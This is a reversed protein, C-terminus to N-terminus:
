RNLTEIESVARLETSFLYAARVRSVLEAIEAPLEEFRLPNRPSAVLCYEGDAGVLPKTDFSFLGREATQVFSQLYRRREKDDQFAGDANVEDNVSYATRVRAEDFFYRTCKEAGDFDEKITPPLRRFGATTFHGIAGYEDVAYWDWDGSFEEEDSIQRAM